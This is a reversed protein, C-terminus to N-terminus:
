KSVRFFHAATTNSTSSNLYLVLVGANSRSSYAGGRIFNYSDVSYSYLQGIGKSSDWTNAGFLGTGTPSPTISLTGNATRSTWERWALGGGAVGPQQATTGNTTGSTWEWVNGAM